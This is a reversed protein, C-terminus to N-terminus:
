ISPPQSVANILYQKMISSLKSNNKWAKQIQYVLRDLEERNTESSRAESLRLLDQRNAIANKEMAALVTRVLNSIGSERDKFSQSIQRWDSLPVPQQSNNQDISKLIGFKMLAAIENKNSKFYQIVKEAIHIKIGSAQLDQSTAQSLAAPGSFATAIQQASIEGVGEIDLALLFQSFPINKSCEISVYLPQIEEPSLSTNDSLDEPLLTYFDSIKSILGAAVLEQIVSSNGIKMTTAFHLILPLSTGRCRDNVCQLTGCKKHNLVHNCSPCNTPIKIRVAEPNRKGEKISHLVPVTGGSYRVSLTDGEYLTQLIRNDRIYLRYATRYNSFTIPKIEAVASLVGTQTLNFNVKQLTTTLTELQFKYACASMPYKKDIKSNSTNAKLLMGDINMPFEHRRASIDTAYKIAEDPSQFLKFPVHPNSFGLKKLYHHLDSQSLKDNSSVMLYGFFQIGSYIQHTNRKSKLSGVVLSLADIYPGLGSRLREHNLQKLDRDLFFLEGRVIGSFNDKLKQPISQINMVYDTINYGKKGDHRTFAHMLKGKKYELACAVGNVKPEVVIGDDKIAECFRKLEGTFYTKKLTRIPDEWPLLERTHDKEPLRSLIWEPHLDEIRKATKNLLDFEFDSVSYHKNCEQIKQIIMKYDDISSIKKYCLEMMEKNPESIIVGNELLDKVESRKKSDSFFATINKITQKDVYELGSFEELSMKSFRDITGAIYALEEAMLFTISPINLAYIFRQLTTHRAAQIETLLREFEEFSISEMSDYDSASLLFIDTINVIKFKKILESIVSNSLSPINLGCRSSFHAINELSDNVCSLHTSCYAVLTGDSAKIESLAATCKPCSTPFETTASLSNKLSRVFRPPINPRSSIIVLDGVRTDSEFFWSKNNISFTGVTKGGVTIPDIHVIAVVLGEPLVKFDIRTIKTMNFQPIFHYYCDKVKVIKREDMHNVQILVGDNEFPLQAFRALIDPIDRWSTDKMVYKTNQITPFGKHALYRISDSLSEKKDHTSATTYKEFCCRLKLELAKNPEESNLIAHAIATRTDTWYQQGGRKRELNLENFDNTHLFLHGFITIITKTDQLVQPIKSMKRVLDIIDLQKEGFGTAFASQLVGDAYNLRLPVSNMIPTFLFERPGAGLDNQVADFFCTVDAMSYVAEPNEMTTNSLLSQLDSSRHVKEFFTHLKRRLLNFEFNTIRSKGNKFRDIHEKFAAVCNELVGEEQSPVFEIDSPDLQRQKTYRHTYTRRLKQLDCIFKFFEPNLGTYAFHNSLAARSGNFYEACIADIKDTLKSNTLFRESLIKRLVNFDSTETQTLMKPFSPQKNTYSRSSYVLMNILSLPTSFRRLHSVTLLINM